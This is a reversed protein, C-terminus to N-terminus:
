KCNFPVHPRGGGYCMLLAQFDGDIVEVTNTRGSCEGKFVGWFLVFAGLFEFCVVFVVVCFLLL